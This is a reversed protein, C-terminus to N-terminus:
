SCDPPSNCCSNENRYQAGGKEIVSRYGRMGLRDPSSRRNESCRHPPTSSSVSLLGAQKRVAKPPQTNPTAITVIADSSRHPGCAEHNSEYAAPIALSNLSSEPRQGRTVVSNGLEGQRGPNLGSNQPNLQVLFHVQCSGSATFWRGGEDGERSPLATRM